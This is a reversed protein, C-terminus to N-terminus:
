NLRVAKQTLTKGMANLRLLVTGAPASRGAETRGDWAVSHDGAQLNSWRWSKLRRGALDFVDLSVPGQKPLSFRFAVSGRSPNPKAPALALVGAKPGGVGVIAEGLNVDFGLENNATYEETPLPAVRVRIRHLAEAGVTWPSEVIRSEGAALDIDSSGIVVDNDLFEVHVSPRPAIQTNRVSASVTVLDGALVSNQSVWFAELAIDPRAITVVPSTWTEVHAPNSPDGLAKLSTIKVIYTGNPLMEPDQNGKATSGDWTITYFFGFGNANSSAAANRALDKINTITHYAKGTTSSFAELKFQSVSHDLHFAFVPFDQGSMTYSAGAPQNTITTGSRKALWPFGFPTPTLAAISQYDGKFGAYPVSYDPTGDDPTVDIYGTFVGRDVLGANATVTVDVSASGGAPIVVPNASFSVTSPAVFLSVAFLGSAQAINHSTAIAPSHGLSYSIAHDSNNHITFSGVVPNGETEGLTLKGPVIETNAGVMGPIDLMGAGQRHVANLFGPNAPSLGHPDASNQLIDRVENSSTGPHAELLLAVAGAVHPSSMSTGSLLAYSGSEIPYTSRITGGPAGIDPKTTLDPSLGWSSFSSIYGGNAIPTSLVEDTWELTTVGATIMADVTAGDAATIAVVPITIAPTGAINPIIGGAVNNYLIVAAAGAQQANFAKVYFGCTGRRILVAKGTLDPLPPTCGDALSATTGTKAMDLTGSNPIAATGGNAPNFGMAVGNVRIIGQNTHTNDFSAVSIVKSGVGPAGGAYLGYPADNGASAVVVMGHNVLTKAADATPYSPWQLAAGISMNIIDMGDDFAQEMAQLMVNAATTNGCGFVKYVGYTVGPAVGTIGGSAGVIGSVHTGHGNCDDPRDDPVPVLGPAWTNGVFDHGVLSRSTPFNPSDQRSVGDGGFDPHDYDQGTDIIGVKVGAGTLGLSNHAVDAGTMALATNLDIEEGPPENPLALELVPYVSKVGSMRRLKGLDKPDVAITLGNWLKHFNGRESYHIGANNAATLFASQEALISGEDGGEVTPPNNLGVFYLLQGEPTQVAEGMSADVSSQSWAAGATTAILFAVVGVARIFRKM